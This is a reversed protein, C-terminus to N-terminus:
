GALNQLYSFDLVHMCLYLGCLLRVQLQPLANNSLSLKTLNAFELAVDRSKPLLMSLHLVNRQLELSELCPMAHSLPCCGIRNWYAAFRVLCSCASVDSVARLHNAAVNLQQLLPLNLTPPMSILQNNYLNIETLLTLQDVGEDLRSISNKYAILQKLSTLAFMAPPLEQLRNDSCDLVELRRLDSLCAPLTTLCNCSVDLTALLRLHNINPMSSMGVHQLGLALLSTRQQVTDPLEGNVLGGTYAIESLDQYDFRYQAATAKASTIIDIGDGAANAAVAAAASALSPMEKFSENWCSGGKQSLGASTHLSSICSRMLRRHWSPPASSRNLLCFLRLAGVPM